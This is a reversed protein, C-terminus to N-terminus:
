HEGRNGNGAIGADTMAPEDGAVADPEPPQEAMDEDLPVADNARASRGRMIVVVVGGIVTAAALAGILRPWVRRKAAQASPDVWQATSTLAESVKPAVTEEVTHGAQDIRPASWARAQYVGQAIRPAAWERAEQVGQAATTSANKALVTAQAAAQRARELGASTQAQNMQTTLSM